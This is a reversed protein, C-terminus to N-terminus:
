SPLPFVLGSATWSIRLEEYVLHLLQQATQPDGQEVASLSQTVDSMGGLIGHALAVDFL